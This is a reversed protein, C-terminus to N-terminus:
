SVRYNRHIGLIVTPTYGCWRAERAIAKRIPSGAPEGFYIRALRAWSLKEIRRVNRRDKANLWTVTKKTTNKTKRNM